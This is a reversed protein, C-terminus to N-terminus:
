AEFSWRPVELKHQRALSFSFTRIPILWQHVLHHTLEMSWIDFDRFM